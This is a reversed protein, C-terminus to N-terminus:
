LTSYFACKGLLEQNGLSNTVFVAFAGTGKSYQHSSAMVEMWGLGANTCAKECGARERKMKSWACMDLAKMKEIVCDRWSKIAEDGVNYMLIQLSHAENYNFNEKTLLEKRKVDFSKYDSDFLGGEGAYYNSFKKKADDYTKEDVTKLWALRIDSSEDLKTVNMILVKDCDVGQELLSNPM